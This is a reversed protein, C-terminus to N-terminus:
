TSLQKLFWKRCLLDYIRPCLVWIRTRIHEVTTEGNLFREGCCCCEWFKWKDEKKALDMAETLAEEATALNNKAFHARLEEIGIKLLERKDEFNMSKKWYARVRSVTDINSLLKKLNKYKRKEKFRDDLPTPNIIEMKKLQLAEIENKIETLSNDEVLQDLNDGLVSKKFKKAKEILETVKNRVEVIRAEPTLNRLDSEEFELLDEFPDTPNELLMARACAQIVADYDYGVADDNKALEFLASAHFFAFSISNPALELARRDFELASHLHHLRAASDQIQSATKIHVSARTSYVVAVDPYRSISDNVLTLARRHDGRRVAAIALNCERLINTSPSSDDPPPPDISPSPSPSPIPTQPAFCLLTKKPGM